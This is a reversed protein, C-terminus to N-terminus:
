ENESGEEDEPLDAPLVERPKGGVYPGVVGQEELVDMLRSAKSWGISLRRQLLSVSAKNEYRVLQTAATILEEDPDAGDDEEGDPAEADETDLEEGDEPEPIEDEDEDAEDEDIVPMAGKRLGGKEIVDRFFFQQWFAVIKVFVNEIKTRLAKGITFTGDEVKTIITGDKFILIMKAKPDIVTEDKKTDPFMEGQEYQKQVPSITLRIPYTEKELKYTLGHEDCLGQLKKVQADYMIVEAKM